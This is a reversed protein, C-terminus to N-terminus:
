IAIALAAGGLVGVVLFWGRSRFMAAFAAAVLGLVAIVLALKGDETDIGKRGISGFGTEVTVWDLMVGLLALLAALAGVVGAVLAPPVGGNTSMPSNGAM